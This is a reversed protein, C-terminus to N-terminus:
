EISCLAGVGRMRWHSPHVDTKLNLRMVMYKDTRKPYKYVPCDFPGYPGHDTSKTKKDKLTVATVHIVPLQSSLKKPDSEELKGEHRNWKAGELFLGFIYQGEDPAEKIKDVDVNLVTTQTIVDDLSWQDKKHQRTVEQRMATLFGQPNLFGTLWYAKLRGHELWNSLQHVRDVLGTFWAGLNPVLWSIEAGSADHTWSRPIKAEFIMNLNEMLEPTMVVNGDIANILNSLSSRVIAIVRQIRQIEQFLFINLPAQFGKDSSGPPGKLKAILPRVEAEIYDKPLKALIDVAKQRVVEDRTISVGSSTDGTKPQTDQIAGLLLSAELQRYSLDANPHLGFILPSDVGPLSDIFERYNNIDIGETMSYAKQGFVFGSKFVDDCLWKAAYTDFLEADVNDTIRGGYQVSAVMYQITSWSVPQGVALTAALHKEIFLLSAELDSNNFEYPVCWGIPGFKRREQVISHIFAQVFVLKRWKDHDIRDILDQSVTTSFTRALGARLGTPPEMTVKISMQLLGIPFKNNVECTIWLRFEPDIDSTKTLIDELQEM